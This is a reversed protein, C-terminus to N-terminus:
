NMLVNLSISSVLAEDHLISIKRETNFKNVAPRRKTPNPKGKNLLAQHPTPTILKPEFDNHPLMSAM